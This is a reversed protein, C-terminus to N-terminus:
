KKQEYFRRKAEKWHLIKESIIKKEIIKYYKSEKNTNFYLASGAVMDAMNVRTDIKSDVHSINFKKKSLKLLSSNFNEIDKQKHFHKDFIVEKINKKYFLFCEELLLWCLISFNEPTDSIRQGEKKIILIFIEIDSQVLKKLYAVRTKDGAKYFKIESLHEKTKPVIKQLRNPYFTGVVAIIIIKDKPDPLTGSEDFFVSVEANM